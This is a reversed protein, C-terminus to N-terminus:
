QTFGNLGEGAYERMEREHLQKLRDMSCGRRKLSM